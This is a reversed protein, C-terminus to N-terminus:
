REMGRRAKEMLGSVGFRNTLETYIEDLEIGCYSALVLLHFLNDCIESVLAKKAQKNNKNNAVDNKDMEDKYLLAAECVEKAEEMVKANMKDIGDSMLSVVYSKEVAGVQKELYQRRRETLLNFLEDIIKKKEM